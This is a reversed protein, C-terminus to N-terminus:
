IESCYNIIIKYFKIILISVTLFCIPNPYSYIDTVRHSHIHSLLKIGNPKSILILIIKEIPHTHIPYHFEDQGRAENDDTTVMGETISM